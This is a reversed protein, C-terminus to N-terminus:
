KLLDDYISKSVEDFCCFIIDATFGNEIEKMVTEVAIKAALEKPYGYVGTSICPFAISSINKEKALQIATRYCSELKENEHMRGGLWYPGVTHIVYQCPLNYGNTIKSEGVKCGHLERCELLLEPGAARHIAGDVGGGGLLSKNAANVIASVHLTTIDGLIVNIQKM